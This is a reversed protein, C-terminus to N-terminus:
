RTLSENWKNSRLSLHLSEIIIDASPHHDNSVLQRLCLVAFSYELLFSLQAFVCLFAGLQLSAELHMANLLEKVLLSNFKYKATNFSITKSKIKFILM